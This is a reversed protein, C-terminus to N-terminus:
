YSIRMFIIRPYIIIYLEVNFGQGAIFLIEESIYHYMCEVM